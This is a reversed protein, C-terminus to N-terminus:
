GYVKGRLGCKTCHFHYWGDDSVCKEKDIVIGMAFPVPCRCVATVYRPNNLYDKIPQPETECWSAVIQTSTVSSEVLELEDEDYATLVNGDLVTCATNEKPFAFIVVEKDTGKVRAIDGMKFKCERNNEVIKQFAEIRKKANELLQKNDM